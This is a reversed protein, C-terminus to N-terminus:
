LASRMLEDRSTGYEHLKYQIKRVSIGLIRAARSTSGGNAALTQLIAYREIDSLRAGPIVPRPPDVGVPLTLHETRILGSKCRARAADLVQRLEPINNPWDYRRLRNVAEASLGPGGSGMLSRALPILDERRERLTPVRVDVVCLLHALDDRCRGSSALVSPPLSGSSVVRVRPASSRSSPLADLLAGQTGPPLEGLDEVYLTGGMARAVADQVEDRSHGLTQEAVQRCGFHVFPGSAHVSLAHITRALRTRGTGAEGYLYVNARTPAVRALQRVCERMEQSEAVVGPLETEAPKAPLEPGREASELAQSVVAFLRTADLPKVVFDLAGERMAGLAADVSSFGTMVVVPAGIDSRRLRRILEVGDMSPMCLDTLILDPRSEEARSLAKFGDSATDVVYGAERLLEALAMRAAGEDDVVLIHAPNGM